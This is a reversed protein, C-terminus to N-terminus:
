IQSRIINNESFYIKDAHIIYQEYEEMKIPDLLPYIKKYRGLHNNEYEDRKVQAELIKQKKDETEVLRKANTIRERQYSNTKKVMEKKTEENINM